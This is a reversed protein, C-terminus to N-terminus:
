KAQLFVCWVQVEAKSIQKTTHRYCAWHCYLQNSLTSFQWFVIDALLTVNIVKVSGSLLLSHAYHTLFFTATCHSQTGCLSLSLIWAPHLSHSTSSITINPFLRVQLLPSSPLKKLPLNFPAPPSHVLLHVLLNKSRCTDSTVLALLWSIRFYSLFLHELWM